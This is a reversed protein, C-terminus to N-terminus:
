DVHWDAVQALNNMSSANLENYLALTGGTTPQSLVRIRLADIVNNYWYPYIGVALTKNLPHTRSPLFEYTAGTTFGAHPTRM